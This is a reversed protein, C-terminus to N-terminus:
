QCLELLCAELRRFHNGWSYREGIERAATRIDPAHCHNIMLALKDEVEKLNDPQEVIGQALKVCLLEAAGVGRSVVVPLGSALAELVVNGFAEQLAPLALLDAAGYYAEIHEQRGAFIIRGKAVEDARSRFSNLRSDGGVVLLYSGRLKPSDWVRLLRDLGKRRFGSGVFLVMPADMPISWQRRIVARWKDCLSPHFREHDVGNYLVTILEESISYTAILERKVEDSVALIKKSHGASLQQREIALVSQHYISMSHWLRRWPGFERALKRLFVKHSGGGSRLVDQCFMRGFSVTVDCRYKRIVRPAWAAFSWLRATRGLSLVPVRHAFTGAPPHIDYEACFLHVEHGLDRLGEATIFLDRETGGKRDLKKHCLAVRM